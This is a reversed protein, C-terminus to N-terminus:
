NIILKKTEFSGASDYIHIFYIGPKEGNLDIETTENEIKSYYIKKGLVDHIEFYNNVVLNTKLKLKGNSPNPYITFSNRNNKESISSIISNCLGSNSGM